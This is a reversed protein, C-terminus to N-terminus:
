WWVGRCRMRVEGGEGHQGQLPRGLEPYVRAREIMDRLETRIRWDWRGADREWLSKRRLLASVAPPLAQPYNGEHLPALFGDSPHGSPFRAGASSANIRQATALTLPLTRATATPHLLTM